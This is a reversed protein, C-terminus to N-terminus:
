RIDLGQINDAEFSQVGYENCYFQENELEAETKDKSDYFRVTSSGDGLDEILYFVKM